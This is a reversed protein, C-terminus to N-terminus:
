LWEDNFNKSVKTEIVPDVVAVVGMIHARHQALKALRIAEKEAVKYSEHRVVSGKDGRVTIMYFDAKVGSHKTNHSIAMSLNNGNKVISILDNNNAKTFRYNIESQTLHLKEGNGVFCYMPPYQGEVSDLVYLRNNSKDKVIDNLEIYSSLSYDKLTDNIQNTFGKIQRKLFRVVKLIEINIEM